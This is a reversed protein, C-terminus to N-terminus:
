KAGPTRFKKNRRIIVESHRMQPPATIKHRLALKLSKYPYGYKEPM